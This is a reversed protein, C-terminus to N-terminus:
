ARLAAGAAAAATRRQSDFKPEMEKLSYSRPKDEPLYHIRMRCESCHYSIRSACHVLSLGLLFNYTNEKHGHRM